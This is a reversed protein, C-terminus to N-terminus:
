SAEIPLSRLGAEIERHCNSCVLVCKQAEILAKKLSRTLGGVSLGFEKKNPDLHHFELAGIYKDYGCCACKGGFHKVLKLKVNKRRTSVRESCCKRCRIQKPNWGERIFTTLGHKKCEHQFEEPM